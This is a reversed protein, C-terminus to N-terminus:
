GLFQSFFQPHKIYFDVAVFGIFSIFLIAYLSKEDEVSQKADNYKEEWFKVRNNKDAKEIDDNIKKFYAANDM